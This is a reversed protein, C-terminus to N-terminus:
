ALRSAPILRVIWLDSSGLGFNRICLRFEITEGSVVGLALFGPPLFAFLESVLAVRGDAQGAVFTQRERRDGLADAQAMLADGLDDLPLRCLDRGSRHRGPV